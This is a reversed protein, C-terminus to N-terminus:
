WCVCNGPILKPFWEITISMTVVNMSRVTMMTTVPVTMVVIISSITVTVSMGVILTTSVMPSVINMTAMTAMVIFTM